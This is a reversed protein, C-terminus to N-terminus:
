KVCLEAAKKELSKLLDEFAKDFAECGDKLLKANIADIDIGNQKLAAIVAFSTKPDETFADQVKGHDLFANLTNEPVTNVTPQAILETIYKIDSYQPNKTSTSGWLVRQIHAGKAALATFETEAFLEKFKEFIIRSNAVAAKGMLSKLQKKTDADNVQAHQEDLLKDVASDIRSIFVSAVSRILSLDKGAQAARALGKRYAAVTEEYQQLSFILTVNVNIGNAILEEIVAFGAKTSPVKIMVNPRNVKQFLRIGENVQEQVKHALLPNIELSVYGDLRNTKEFVEKFHDAAQQIDRITLEDYIEFTSKGQAKLAVIAKDYDNSSGIATNFISPNSTMGRLGNEIRQKLQGNELMPRSIYDLWISQGFQALQNLLSDSM